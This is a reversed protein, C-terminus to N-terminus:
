RDFKGDRWALAARLGDERGIRSFEAAADARHGIADAERVVEQLMTRNMLEVAKNVVSKNAAFLDHPILATRSALDHVERELQEAPVAMLVLGIREATGGDIFDGTLLMRKAWQPGVHYTWMHTPPTGQARVPPFGIRADDAAIVMDCHLALDTGGAVCYGHLQAITPKTVNWIETMARTTRRMGNIDERISIQGSRPPGSPTIDFGSCFAPGAGRIVICGVAPDEEARQVADVLEALLEPSLANRREPRNLTLYRVRDNTETLLTAYDM